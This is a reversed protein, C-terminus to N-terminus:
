EAGPAGSEWCSGVQMRLGSGHQISKQKTGEEVGEVLPGCRV